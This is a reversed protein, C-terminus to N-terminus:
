PLPPAISSYRTTLGGDAERVESEKAFMTEWLLHRAIPDLSDMSIWVRLIRMGNHIEHVLLDMGQAMAYRSDRDSRAWLASEAAEADPDGLRISAIGVLGEDGSGWVGFLNGLDAVRLSEFEAVLAKAGQAAGRLKVVYMGLDDAEVLAPVSGGERFPMVYRAARVTRLM